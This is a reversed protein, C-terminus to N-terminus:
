SALKKAAEPNRRPDSILDAYPLLDEAPVGRRAFSDKENPHEIARYIRFADLRTM